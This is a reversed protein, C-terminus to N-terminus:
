NELDRNDDHRHEAEARLQQRAQWFALNIHQRAQLAEYDAQLKAEGARLRERESAYHDTLWRACLLAGLCGSGVLLALLFLLSLFTSM